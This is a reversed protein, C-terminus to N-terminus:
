TRHTPKKSCFEFVRTLRLCVLMSTLFFILCVCYISLKFGLQSLGYEKPGNEALFCGLNHSTSNQPQFINAVLKLFFFINHLLKFLLMNPKHANVYFNTLLLNHPHWYTKPIQTLPFKTIFKQILLLLGRCQLKRRQNFMAIYKHQAKIQMSGNYTESKYEYM